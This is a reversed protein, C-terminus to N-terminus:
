KVGAKKLTKSVVPTVAQGVKQKDMYVDSQIKSNVVITQGYEANAKLMTSANVNGTELAVAQKMRALVDAGFADITKFVDKKSADIGEGMGLDFNVGIDFTARSPSHMKLKKKLGDLIDKGLDKVKNVIWDKMNKIGEWLGRIFNKGADKIKTFGEKIKTPLQKAFNKVNEKIEPVKQKIGNWLQKIMQWGAKVLEISASILAILLQKIIYPAQKILSKIIQPLAKVLGIVLQIAGQILQPLCQLLGNIILTIAMPLAKILAMIITPLAKVLALVLQIAGNILAPIIIPLANVLAMVIQLLGNILAPIIVPIAQTLMTILTVLGNILTPLVRPIMSTITQILKPLVTTVTKILKPLVKNIIEPVKSAIATITKTISEIKDNIIESMKGADGGAKKYLAIMGGIALGAIGIGVAMGKHAKVFDLVGSAGTKAKTGIASLKEGIGSNQLIAFAKQTGTLDKNFLTQIASVKGVEMRYLSAQVRANQFGQLLGLATRGANMGVSAVKVAGIAGAVALIPARLKYILEIIKPIVEQAKKGFTNIATKVKDLNEQITGIGLEELKDNISGIINAVNKVIATKINQVSTAIGGTASEAQKRFSEFGKGGEKDLKIIENNFDEMSIKGSQLASYLDKQNASAGLLSKAVQNLQGPAVEVLTNWSQQDVKGKALMQNYQNLARSASEAGQGGALFMDNLAIASETGKDLDGLSSTLLQTNQVIEDLSTPLGEIGDALSDISKKSQEASFGLSQMVKPFNQLTDFRKVASGISDKIANLGVSAIKAIGLGAVINKITGGGKKTEGTIQNIGKKFGNTDLTTDFRLYGATNM